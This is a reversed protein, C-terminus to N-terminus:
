NVRVRTRTPRAATAAATARTAVAHVSPPEPCGAATLARTVRPLEVVEELLVVVVDVVGGGGAGTPNRM